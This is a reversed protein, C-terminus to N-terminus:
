AMVAIMDLVATALVPDGTTQVYGAMEERRWSKSFLKWAVRGDISTHAAPEGSATAVPEWKQNRQMFWDGGGEGTITIRVLTGEPAPINRYTYPLAKMFTALVPHYLEATQIGPIGAADRIQQQHHWKETYERAIHFWNFSTTEGAWSVPYIAPAWPDLSAQFACYPPGTIALLEVLLAPSVRKMAKVWDANLTNLYNILDQYSGIYRPPDGAYGDRVVSLARLNGDLLHAAVDKVTWEGAITPLRWQEPTLARLLILLQEDLVPFLHAAPIPIEQITHQDAMLDFTSRNKYIVRRSTCRPHSLLSTPPLLCHATPMEHLCRRM